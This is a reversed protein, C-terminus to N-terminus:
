EEGAIIRNFKEEDWEKPDPPTYGLARQRAWMDEFNAALSPRSRKAKAASSKSGRTITFGEGTRSQIVVSGFKRVAAFVKATERSVDRMTFTAVTSM